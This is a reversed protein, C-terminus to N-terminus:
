LVGWDRYLSASMERAEDATLDVARLVDALGRSEQSVVCQEGTFCDFRGNQIWVPFLLCYWPRVTRPLLCGEAGLFVCAGDPTTGLRYRGGPVPFLLAVREKHGPFLRKMAMVFVDSNEERIRGPLGCALTEHPVIRQWEAESLPFCLHATEPETRCCTPYVAACRACASLTHM